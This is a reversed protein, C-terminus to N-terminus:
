ISEEMSKKDADRRNIVETEKIPNGMTWYKFGDFVWVTFTKGRWEQEFGLERIIKILNNFRIEDIASEM